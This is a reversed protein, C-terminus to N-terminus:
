SIFQLSVKISLIDLYPMFLLYTTFVVKIISLCTCNLAYEAHDSGDIAVLVVRKRTTMNEQTDPIEETVAHSTGLYVRTIQRIIATLSHFFCFVWPFYSIVTYGAVDAVAEIYYSDEWLACPRHETKISCEERCSFTLHTYISTTEILSSHPWRLYCSVIFITFLCSKYISM